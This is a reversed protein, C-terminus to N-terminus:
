DNLWVGFIKATLQLITGTTLAASEESNFAFLELKMGEKISWNPKLSQMLSYGKDPNSTTAVSDIVALIWLPVKAAASQIPTIGTPRSQLASKIEGISQPSLGVIIPGEATTKSRFELAWDIRSVRFGRANTTKIPSDSSVIATQAALAGLALDWNVVYLIEVMHILLGILSM